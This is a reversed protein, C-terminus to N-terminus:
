NEKLLLTLQNLLNDNGPSPANADVIQGKRDILVYRPIAEWKIRQWVDSVLAENPILHFGVLKNTFIFKQWKKQQAVRDRSFYLIVLDSNEKQARRVKGYNKMEEVCPGCWTAWIDLYIVKNRFRAVLEDFTNIQDYNELIRVEPDRESDSLPKIAEEMELAIARLEDVYSSMPYEVKLKRYYDLLEQSFMAPNYYYSFFYSLFIEKAEKRLHRDAIHLGDIFWNFRDPLKSTGEKLFFGKYRMIYNLLYLSYTSSWPASQQVLDDPFLYAWSKETARTHDDNLTDEAPNTFALMSYTMFRQELASCGLIRYYLDAEKKAILYFSSSLKYNNNQSNYLSDLSAIEYAIVQRITDIFSQQDTIDSLRAALKPITTKNMGHPYASSRKRDALFRNEKQLDEMFEVKDKDVLVKISSHPEVYIDIQKGNESTFIFGPQDLKLKIEIAGRSDPVVQIHSRLGAYGNKLPLSFYRKQQLNTVYRLRVVTQSSVLHSSLFFVILFINKM